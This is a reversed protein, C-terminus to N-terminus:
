PTAAAAAAASATAALAADSLTSPAAAIARRPRRAAASSVGGLCDAGAPYTGWPKAAASAAAAARGEIGSPNTGCDDSAGNKSTVSSVSSTNCPWRQAELPYTGWPAAAAAAACTFAAAAVSLAASASSAASRSPGGSAATSATAATTARCKKYGPPPCAALSSPDGAAGCPRRPGPARGHAAGGRAAADRSCQRMRVPATRRMKNQRPEQTSEGHRRAHVRRPRPDARPRPGVSM